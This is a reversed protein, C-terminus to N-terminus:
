IGSKKNHNNLFFFVSDDTRFPFHQLERFDWIVCFLMAKWIADAAFCILFHPVLISSFFRLLFTKQLKNLGTAWQLGLHPILSSVFHCRKDLGSFFARNEFKRRLFSEISFRVATLNWHAISPHGMTPRHLRSACQEGIHPFM